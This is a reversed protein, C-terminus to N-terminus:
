IQLWNRFKLCDLGTYKANRGYKSGASIAWSRAELRRGDRGRGGDGADVLMFIVLFLDTEAFDNQNYRSRARDWAPLSVKQINQNEQSTRQVPQRPALSQLNGPITKTEFIESWRNQILHHSWVQQVFLCIGAPHRCRDQHNEAREVQSHLKAQDSFHHFM